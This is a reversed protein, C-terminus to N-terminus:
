TPCRVPWVGMASVVNTNMKLSLGLITADDFHLLAAPAILKMLETSLEITNFGSKWGPPVSGLIGSVGNLGSSTKGVFAQTEFGHVDVREYNLGVRDKLECIQAKSLTEMTGEKVLLIRTNYQEIRLEGKSFSVGECLADFDNESSIKDAAAILDDNESSM